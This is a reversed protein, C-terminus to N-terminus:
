TSEGRKDYKFTSVLAQKTACQQKTKLITFIYTQTNYFYM